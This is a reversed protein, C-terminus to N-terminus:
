ARRRRFLALAGLAGLVAISPEPIAEVNVNTFTGVTANITGGILIGVADYTFNSPSAATITAPWEVLLDANDTLSAAISINTADLRLITM